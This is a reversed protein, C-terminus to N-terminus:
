KVRDKEQQVGEAKSTSKILGIYQDMRSNFTVHVEQVALLTVIAVVLTLLAATAVIFQSVTALKPRTM